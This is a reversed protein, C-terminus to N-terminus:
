ESKVESDRPFDEKKTFYSFTGWANIATGLILTPLYFQLQSTTIILVPIISLLGLTFGDVVSFMKVSSICDSTGVKKCVDSYSVKISKLEQTRFAVVVQMWWRNLVVYVISILMVMSWARWNDIKVHMFKATNEPNTGPGFHLFSARDTTMMLIAFFLVLVGFIILNAKVPHTVIDM